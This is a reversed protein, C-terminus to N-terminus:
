CCTTHMGKTTSGAEEVSVRCVFDVQIFEAPEGGFLLNLWWFEPQFRLPLLILFRCVDTDKLEMEAPKQVTFNEKAAEALCLGPYARPIGQTLM